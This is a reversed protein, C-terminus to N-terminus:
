FKTDFGLMWNIGPAAYGPQYTFSEDFLNRVAAYIRGDTHGLSFDRSLKLNAQSHADIPEPPDSFRVGQVFQEDVMQVDAHLRWGPAFQWHSGFTATYGPANPRQAPSIDTLTLGAFFRLEESPELFLTLEAGRTTFEDYITLSVPPPPPDFQLANRSDDHFLSLDALLWPSFRHQVGVEFHDLTEAEIDHWDNPGLGFFGWRRNFVAAYVGSYNYARAYQAYFRTEGRQAVLGAQAGWQDEFPDSWNYRLGVSPTLAWDSSSTNAERAALLFLSHQRILQQDFPADPLPAPYDDLTEGGYVQLDYGGTVHWDAPLHRTERWQLGYSEFSTINTYAAGIPPPPAGDWQYWLTEGNDWYLKAYGEGNDGTHRLTLTSFLSETEYTEVIPLPPRGMAQPDEAQSQTANLFASLSWIENLQYDFHYSLNSLEGASNPRHGDSKRHSAVFHSGLPGARYSNEYVAELLGWSGTGLKLRNSMGEQVASKAVLNIAGFTMNGHLVPQPSKMVEAQHVNDISMLDLLPHTWIATFRAVGDQMLSIQGGPRGNGHGRIYIAGGDGGGFSGVPNFRSITLGPVTRLADALDTAHLAEIQKSSIRAVKDATPRVEIEELIPQGLVQVADLEVPRAAESSSVQAFLSIPSVLIGATALTSIYRHLPRVVTMLFDHM